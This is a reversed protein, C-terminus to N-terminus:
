LSRSPMRHAHFKVWVCLKQSAAIREVDDSGRVVFQCLKRVPHRLLLQRHARLRPLPVRALDDSVQGVALEGEAEPEPLREGFIM